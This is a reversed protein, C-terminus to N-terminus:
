KTGGRKGSAAAKKRTKSPPTSRSKKLRLQMRDLVRGLHSRSIEIGLERKLGQRLEALTADPTAGVRDRLWSEAAATVRSVPGYRSQGVREMKGTRLLQQRIKKAYPLSVEFRESLLQLTEVGRDYAVLFKRRLDDSYARAMITTDCSFEGDGAYDM